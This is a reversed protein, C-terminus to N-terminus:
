NSEISANHDFGLIFCYTTTNSFTKGNGVDGNLIVEKRDGVSWYSSAEGSTAATKIYTWSAENFSLVMM